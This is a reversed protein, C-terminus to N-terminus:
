SARFFRKKPLRFFLKKTLGSFAIKPFLFLRHKLAGYFVIKGKSFDNKNSGQFLSKEYVSFIAKEHRV